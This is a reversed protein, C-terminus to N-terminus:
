GITALDTGLGVAARAETKIRIRGAKPALIRTEMTMAEILAVAEGAAIV